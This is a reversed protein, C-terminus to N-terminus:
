VYNAVCELTGFVDSSKTDHKEDYEKCEGLQSVEKEASLDLVVRAEALCDESEQSGNQTIEVEVFEFRCISNQSRYKEETVDEENEENEHYAPM